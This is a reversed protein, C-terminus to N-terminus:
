PYPMPRRVPNRPRRANKAPCNAITFTFPAADGNCRHKMRARLGSDVIGTLCQCRFRELLDEGDKSVCEGTARWGDSVILDPGKSLAQPPVPYHERHSDSNSALAERRGWYVVSAAPDECPRPRLREALM